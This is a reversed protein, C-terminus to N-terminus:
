LESSRPKNEKIRHIFRTRNSKYSCITRHYQLDERKGKWSCKMGNTQCSVIAKPCENDIHYNFDNRKLGKQQCLLCTVQLQDLKNLITQNKVTKLDKEQSVQRCMPCTKSKKYWLGICYECFIHECLTIKPKNFPNLCIACLLKSDILSENEYEYDNIHSM